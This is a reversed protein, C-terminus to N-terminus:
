PAISRRYVASAYTITARGPNLFQLTLTSSQGPALTRGDASLPLTVFPSGPLAAATVGSKNVLSVGAPLGSLVLYASGPVPLASGSTVVVNQVFFGTNRDLRLGSRQIAFSASVDLPPLPAGASEVVFVAQDSVGANSGSIVATGPGALSVLGEASVTAVAPDSSAYVTGSVSASLDVTAASGFSGSLTLQQAPAGPDVVYYRQAFAVSDPATAPAVDITVPVGEIEQGLADIAIPTITLAGAFGAPVTQVAAYNVEDVRNTGTLLAPPMGIVVDTAGVSGDVAVNVAVTDGPAFRQHPAPSTVVVLPNAAAVRRHARAAPNM